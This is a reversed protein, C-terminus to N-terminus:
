EVTFEHVMGAEAHMHCAWAYRGPEFEITFYGTTGAPLQEVGGVFNVAFPENPLRMVEVVQEVTQDGEFRVVHVDHTPDPQEIM